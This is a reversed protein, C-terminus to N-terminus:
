LYAVEDQLGRGVRNEVEGLVWLWKVPRRRAENVRLPKM